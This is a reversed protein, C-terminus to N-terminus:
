YAPYPVSEGAVMRKLQSEERHRILRLDADGEALRERILRAYQSAPLGTAASEREAMALIEKESM